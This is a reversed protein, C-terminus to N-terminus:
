TMANVGLVREDIRRQQGRFEERLKAEYRRTM